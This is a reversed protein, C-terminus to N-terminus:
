PCTGDSGDSAPTCAAVVPSAGIHGELRETVVGYNDTVVAQWEVQTDNPLPDDNADMVQSLAVPFSQQLSNAGCETAGQLQIQLLVGNANQDLAGDITTDWLLLLDFEPALDGDADSLDIDFQVSPGTADPHASGNGVTFANILPPSDGCGQYGTEGTPEPTPPDDTMEPTPEGGCAFLFLPVLFLSRSM